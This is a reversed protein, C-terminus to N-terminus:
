YEEAPFKGLSPEEDNFNMWPSELAYFDPNGLHRLRPGLGCRFVRVFCPSLWPIIHRVMWVRSNHKLLNEIDLADFGIEVCREREREKFVSYTTDRRTGLAGPILKMRRNM